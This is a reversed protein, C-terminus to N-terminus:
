RDPPQTPIPALSPQAPEAAASTPSAAAAPGTPGAAATPAAATPQASAASQAPETPATASTASPTTAPAAEEAAAKEEATRTYMTDMIIHVFGDEGTYYDSSSLGQTLERNIRAKYYFWDTVEPAGDNIRLPIMTFEPRGNKDLTMEVLVSDRSFTNGSDYIFNGLSYCIIGDKYKEVEQLVHPHCGIVIDAGADIFQHGLNQQAGDRAIGSDSGWHCYVITIDANKSARNIMRNYDGYTTALVGSRSKRATSEVSYVDTISVFAIRYGNVDIVTYKAADELNMGIGNYYINNQNFHEILEEIPRNKYDYAHDNSVAFVDIGASQLASLDEYTCWLRGEKRGKEYTSVDDKLVAGSLNAFTLDANQMYASVGHFVSDYGEKVTLQEIYRSMMVDGAFDVTLTYDKYDDKNVVAAKRPVIVSAGIFMTFLIAITLLTLAMNLRKIKRISIRVKEIRMQRYSKESESDSFHRPRYKSNIADRTKNYSVKKGKGSPVPDLEEPINPMDKSM